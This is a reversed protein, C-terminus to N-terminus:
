PVVETKNAFLEIPVDDGAALTDYAAREPLSAVQGVKREGSAAVKMHGSADVSVIAGVTLPGSAIGRALGTATFGVSTGNRGPEVLLGAITDLTGATALTLVGAVLKVAKGVDTIAFDQGAPARRQAM